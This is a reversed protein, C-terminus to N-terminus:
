KDVDPFTRQMYKLAKPVKWIHLTEADNLRPNKKLFCARSVNVHRAVIFKIEFKPEALTKTTKKNISTGYCITELVIIYFEYILYSNKHHM